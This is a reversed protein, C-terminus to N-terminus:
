GSVKGSEKGREKQMQEKENRGVGKKGNTVDREKLRVYRDGKRRLYMSYVRAHTAKRLVFFRAVDRALRNCNRYYVIMGNAQLYDRKSLSELEAKRYYVM